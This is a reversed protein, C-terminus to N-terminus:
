GDCISRVDNMFMSFLWRVIVVAIGAVALAGIMDFPFHVGIYVRAWATVLGLGLIIRGPARFGSMLVLALGLALLFTAHFSPFSPTADHAALTHGLGIMFPRPQPWFHRIGYAAAMALLVAAVVRFLDFRQAPKSRLVPVAVVPISIAVPWEAALRAVSPMLGDSASGANVALFLALNLGEM